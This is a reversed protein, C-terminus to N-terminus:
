DGLEFVVIIHHDAAAINAKATLEISRGDAGIVIEHADAVARGTSTVRVEGLWILKIRRGIDFLKVVAADDIQTDFTIKLSTLGGIDVLETTIYPIPHTAGELEYTYNKVSAVM